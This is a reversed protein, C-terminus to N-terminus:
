RRPAPVPSPRPRQRWARPGARGARAARCSARGPSRCRRRGAPAPAAAAPPPRHVPGRAPRAKGGGIGCASPSAFCTSTRPTIPHRVQLAPGAAAQRGPAKGVRRPAAALPANEAQVLHLRRDGGQQRQCATTGASPTLTMGPMPSASSGAAQPTSNILWAPTHLSATSQNPGRVPPALPGREHSSLPRRSAERPRAVRRRAAAAPAAPPLGPARHAPNRASERRSGPPAKGDGPRAGTRGPSRRGPPRAPPQLGFVRAPAPTKGHVLHM